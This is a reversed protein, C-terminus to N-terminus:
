NHASEANRFVMQANDNTRVTEFFKRLAPYLEKTFVINREFLHRKVEVTNGDATAAIQCGVAKLDLNKSDPLGEVRFGPPLHIKVDDTEEYPYHIYVANVRKESACEQTQSMQFIEIPMLMRDAATTALSPITLNGEVHLPQSTDDWNSIKSVAFDAGAPL